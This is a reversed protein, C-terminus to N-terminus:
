TYTTTPGSRQGACSPSTGEVVVGPEARHRSPADVWLVPAAGFVAALAGGVTPALIQVVGFTSSLVGGAAVIGARGVLAPLAGFESADFWVWVTATILAAVYIHALTLMGLVSALPMSAVAVASVINCIIMLTRRNVRDAIAAAVLGFLLYPVAEIVLLLATQSASGTLQFVLISLVVRRVASGAM